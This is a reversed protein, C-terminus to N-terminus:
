KTETYQGVKVKAPRIIKGHLSFGPQFVEQVTHDDKQEVSVMGIAEHLSPDFPEGIEGIKSVGHHELAGFLNTYISEMGIRWEKPLADWSEKNKLALEFADLVPILERVLDSNAFKVVEQQREEDRKRANVFDAKDKQWNTLTVLKAEEAAKLKDRLKKITEGQSEEALVSDDIGTEEDLTIDDREDKM